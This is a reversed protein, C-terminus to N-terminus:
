VVIPLGYNYLPPCGNFFFLNFDEGASCYTTILGANGIAMNKPVDLEVAYSPANNVTTYSHIAEWIPIFRKHELFPVEFSVHPNIGLYRIASGLFGRGRMKFANYLNEPGTDGTVTVFNQVTTSEKRTVSATSMDGERSAGALDYTWRISGRWGIFACALYNILTTDAYLYKGAANLDVVNSESAVTDYIYGGYQPFAMRNYVRFIRGRNATASEGFYIAEHRCERKLLQRFSQISEGYFVSTTLPNDISVDAIKDVVPPDSVDPGSPDEMEGSEPEISPLAEVFQQASPPTLHFEPLNESPVPAVEFDDLMSIFVNIEIPSQNSSPTMLDNQVYISLTGNGYDTPLFIPDGERYMNFPPAALPIRPVYATNRTWGIDVCFDKEEAIDHITSYVTNYEAPSHAHVPDYVVRIRGRHYASCVIQFRIRMSGRWSQFPIAAFACAPLYYTQNEYVHLGPDVKMSWLIDGAAKTMPNWQFTKLYSERQAISAITLEDYGELGTTRPDVTLEQKSDFTLKHGDYHGDTTALTRKSIPNLTREELDMPKSFGFLKAMAAIANAGIETAKAYPAIMPVDSLSRAVRAVNSAPKSVVRKGHEDTTGSEPVIDPVVETPVAISLNEAWALVTIRVSDTGGNVHALSNLSSIVLEGMERWDKYPIRLSNHYWFFPLELECGSSSTPDIFGKIRQSGRIFDVQQWPSPPTDPNLPELPEYAAMLMGYYFPNGNILIKVKMTCKLLYFNKLKENVRANEWFLTWPNLREHFTSLPSWDYEAIQLPRSFFDNLQVDEIFGDNRTADMTTGRSDMTTAANDHMTINEHKSSTPATKGFSIIKKPTTTQNRWRHLSLRGACAVGSTVWWCLLVARYFFPTHIGIGTFRKMRQPKAEIRDPLKQPPSKGDDGLVASQTDLNVDAFEIAEDDSEDEDFEFDLMNVRLEEAMEEYSRYLWDCHFHVEECASRIIGVNEDYVEKEHLTLERLACYLVQEFLDEIDGSGIHMLLSKWISKLSLKGVAYGLIPHQYTTRKLFEVDKKEIYNPPSTSKSADTVTMGIKTFEAQIQHFGWLDPDKACSFNDDGYTVLSVYDRFHYVNGTVRKSILYFVARMLLSNDGSNWIVTLPHGSPFAFIAIATGNWEIVPNLIMENVIEMMTQDKESYGLKGALAVYGNGTAITTAKCRALDYSKFDLDVFKGVEAHALKAFMEDWDKGAPNMGVACESLEREELLFHIIPLYYKRVLLSVLFEMAYFVRVKGKRQVIESKLHARVVTTLVEGKDMRECMSDFVKQHEPKLRYEYPSDELPELMGLKNKYRPYTTSTKKNVPTIYRRTSDGNITQHMDLPEMPGKERVWEDAAEFLAKFYDDFAYQRADKPFSGCGETLVELKPNYVEYPKSMDPTMAVYPIKDKVVDHIISKRAKTRPKDVVPTHGLIQVNMVNGKFPEAKPHPGPALEYVGEPYSTPVFASHAVKSIGVDSKKLRCVLREMQERTVTQAYGSNQVNRDGAVHFGLIAPDRRDSIIPSMCKGKGTIKSSYTIAAMIERKLIRIPLSKNVMLQEEILEADHSNRDSTILIGRISKELSTNPLFDYMARKMAPATIVYMAALDGSQSFVCASYDFNTKHMTKNCTIYLVCQGGCKEKVDDVFHAPVVLVKSEVYFGMVISAGAQNTPSDAVIAMNKKIANVAETASHNNPMSPKPAPVFSNMIFRSWGTPAPPKVVKPLPDLVEGSQHAWSKRNENLLTLAKIFVAAVGAGLFFNKVSRDDAKSASFIHTVFDPDTRVKHIISKIRTEAGIERHAFDAAATCAFSASFTLAGVMWSSCITAVPAPPKKMGFFPANFFLTEKVTNAVDKTTMIGFFPYRVVEKTRPTTFFRFGADVLLVGATCMVATFFSRKLIIDSKCYYRNHLSQWRIYKEFLKGVLTPKEFDLKGDTEFYMLQKPMLRMGYLALRDGISNIEDVLEEYSSGAIARDVKAWIAINALPATWSKVVSTMIPWLISEVVGSQPDPDPKPRAQAAVTTDAPESPKILIERVSSAPEDRRSEEQRSLAAHVREETELAEGYNRAFSEDRKRQEEPSRYSNRWNHRPKSKKTDDKFDAKGKESTPSVKIEGKMKKFSSCVCSEKGMRCKECDNTKGAMELSRNRAALQATADEFAIWYMMKLYQTYNMKESSIVKGDEIFNYYSRAVTTSGQPKFKTFVSYTFADDISIEGNALAATNLTHTGTKAVENVTKHVSVYRRYFANPENALDKFPEEVNSTLYVGEPAVFVRDKQEVDARPVAYPRNNVLGLIAGYLEKRQEDPGASLTPCIEDGLITQTLNSIGNQWKGMTNLHNLRSQEFVMDDGLVKARAAIIAKLVAVHDYTKGACAPGFVHVGMAAPVWDVTKVVDLVRERLHVIENVLGLAAATNTAKQNCKIIMQVGDLIDQINALLERREQVTFGEITADRMKDNFYLQYDYYKAQYYSLQKTGHLIPSLSRAKFCAMGITAWWEFLRIARDMFDAADLSEEAAYKAVSAFITKSFTVQAIHCNFIAYATGIVYALDDNMLMTVFGKLTGFSEAQLSSPDPKVKPDANKKPRGYYIIRLLEMSCHLLGGTVASTFQAAAWIADEIGEARLLSRLLFILQEFYFIPKKGMIQTIESDFISKTLDIARTLMDEDRASAKAADKKATEVSGAEARLDSSLTESKLLNCQSDYYNATHLTLNLPRKGSTRVQVITRFVCDKLGFQNAPLGEFNWEPPMGLLM